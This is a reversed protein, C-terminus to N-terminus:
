LDPRSTRRYLREITLIVAAIAIFVVQLVEVAISIIDYPAALGRISLPANLINWFLILVVTGDIGIFYWLRGWQKVVPVAWFLQAIGTIAYFIVFKWDFSVKLYLSILVVTGGIGIFYWLRGWQKVVPVAWFLQAIGTAVFFLSTNSGYGIFFPVLTLHLIGVLVTAAAGAYHLIKSDGHQMRSRRPSSIGHNSLTEQNIEQQKTGLKEVLKVKDKDTQKKRKLTHFLNYAFIIQGFGVVIAFFLLWPMAWAFQQPIDAERRIFGAFGLYTFTLSIGFGGIVTLMLHIVGLTKNLNRKTISPVISYILGLGFLVSGTLIVLHIHGVINLTNHLYVNTGWWGTQAGAFGGFAWGAIGALMFLSTVNWKIRSRFIYMMVTMITLGSPFVVGFTAAQSLMQLWVPNPTDMFVHHSFVMMTFIFYFPWSRYAWKDYPVTKKAYKPIYYYVAGLFSFLTFYVIPHGFFWWADKTFLWNPEFNPKLLFMFGTSLQTFLGINGILQVVSNIFVGVVVISVTPVASRYKKPFWSSIGLISIWRIAGSSINEIPLLDVRGSDNEDDSHYKHKNDDGQETKEMGVAIKGKLVTVIVNVCFLTLGIGIIADAVLFITAAFTSWGNNGPHFALPLLNYWGAGFFMTGSVILLIVGGNLLSFSWIALRMSFLPKKAFKSVLYYSIGVTLMSIFGFFMVQGHVTLAAYFLGFTQQQSALLIVKSQIIRMIIALSGAILFYIISCIIFLLTLSSLENTIEYQPTPGEEKEYKSHLMNDSVGM